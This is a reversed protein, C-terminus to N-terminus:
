DVHRVVQSALNHSGHDDVFPRSTDRSDQAADQEPEIADTVERWASEPTSNALKSYSPALCRHDLVVHVVTTSVMGDGDRSRRPRNHAM